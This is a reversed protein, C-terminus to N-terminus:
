QSFVEYIMFVLVLLTMNKITIFHRMLFFHKSEMFCFKTHCEVKFLSNLDMKGYRIKIM